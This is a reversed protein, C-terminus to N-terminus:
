NCVIYIPSKNLTIGDEKINVPEGNRGAALCKNSDFINIKESYNDLTWGAYIKQNNREFEFLFVEGKSLSSLHYIDSLSKKFRSNKLYGTMTKYAHYAPRTKFTRPDGKYIYKHHVEPAEEEEKTPNYGDDLIGEKYSAYHGWYVRDIYGGAASLVYYRVLYDAYEEADAKREDSSNHFTSPVDLNWHTFSIIFTKIGYRESILDLFRSKNILDMKALNKLGRGIVYEDYSEPQIARDVFLNDTSGQIRMDEDKIAEFIAIQWFPEFDQINPAFINVRYKKAVDSAIKLAEIYDPITYGSWKKRNPTSGIEYNKIHPSFKSIVYELFDRWRDQIDKEHMRIAEEKPQVLHLLIDIKNEICKNLFREIHQKDSGYGFDVRLSQVGIDLLNKIIHEDGEASNSPAVNLGFFHDDIKHELFHPRKWFDKLYVTINKMNASLLHSAHLAKKEAMFSPEGSILYIVKVASSFQFVFLPVGIVIILLGLKLIKKGM